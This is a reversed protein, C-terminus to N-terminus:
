AALRKRRKAEAMKLLADARKEQRTRMDVAVEVVPSPDPMSTAVASRRMLPLFRGARNLITDIALM